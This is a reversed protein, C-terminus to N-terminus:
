EPLIDVANRLADIATEIEDAIENDTLNELSIRELEAIMAIIKARAEDSM